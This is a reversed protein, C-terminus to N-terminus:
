VGETSRTCPLTIPTGTAQVGSPNNVDSVRVTWADDEAEGPPDYTHLHEKTPDLNQDSKGDGWDVNLPFHACPDVHLVVTRGGPNNAPPACDVDPAITGCPLCMTIESSKSSNEVDQVRITYSGPAYERPSTVTGEAATHTTPNPDQPIWYIRVGRRNPNTYHIQVKNRDAPCEAATVTPNEPQPTTTCPITTVGTAVTSHNDADKVTIQVQQQTRHPPTAYINAQRAGTKGTAFGWALRPGQDTPMVFISEAERYVLDPYQKNDIRAVVAGTSKSIDTITFYADDQGGTGYFHYVFKGYVCWCQYAGAGPQTTDNVKADYVPKGYSHALFDDLKWVTIHYQNDSTRHRVAINGHELDLCPNLHDSDPRPDYRDIGSGNASLVKNASYTFRAIKTAYGNSGAGQDTPDIGTFLHVTSGDHMVGIGSGHDFGRAPGPTDGILYMTSALKGDVVRNIALHGYRERDTGDIAKTEGTLKRGGNIVQTFYLDGTGHDIDCQQHVTTQSLKIPTGPLATAAHQPQLPDTEKWYRHEITAGAQYTQVTGDSWDVTIPYKTSPGPRLTVHHDDTPDCIATAEAGPQCPVTVTDAGTRAPEDPDAATITRQGENDSRFVVTTIDQGDGANTPDDIQANGTATITVSGHGRNDATVKFTRGGPDTPDCAAHVAVLDAGGGTCVPTQVSRCGGDIAESCVMILFSRGLGEAYSHTIAGESLGNQKTTGDGWDISVTGHGNNDVNLTATCTQDWSIFTVDPRLGGAVYTCRSCFNPQDNRCVKIPFRGDATYTHRLTVHCDDGAAVYQRQDGVEDEGWDVQLGWYGIPSEGTCACAVTDADPPGCWAQTPLDVEVLVTRGTADTPDQRCNIVPEDAALPVTLTRTTCIQPYQADCVTLTYRVPDAGPDGCSGSYRHQGIEGERLETEAGDGWRVRVPGYGHNDSRLEVLCGTVNSGRKIFVEAPEPIGGDVPQVGCEAEPPLFTTVFQVFDANPRVPCPLPTPRTGDMLVNYPGKGWGSSRRTTGSFQFTVPGNAITWQGIQVGTICPFLMYGYQSGGRSQACAAGAGSYVNMWVELAFGSPDCGGSSVGTFGIITGASDRVPCWSPKMILVLEPDLACLELSIGYNTPAPCSVTTFCVQGDAKTVPNQESQQGGGNDGGDPSVVINIFADTTVQGSGGPNDPNEFIPRCCGDLKTARLVAAGSFSPCIVQAM